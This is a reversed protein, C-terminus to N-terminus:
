IGYRFRTANFNQLIEQQTLARNYIKVQGINGHLEFGSQRFTGIRLDENINPMSSLGGGSNSMPMNISNVSVSGTTSGTKTFVINFYRAALNYGLTNSVNQNQIYGSDSGRGAAFYIQNDGVELFLDFYGINPGASVLVPEGATQNLLKVWLDVSWYDNSKFYSTFGNPVSIYDNTGDLVFVGNNASTFGVGNILTAGIGAVLGNATVGSGSYSRTNAADLYMVLGDSVISPNYGVAM